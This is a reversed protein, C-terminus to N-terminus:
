PLKIVTGPMLRSGKDANKYGASKAAKNLVKKNKKWIDEWLSGDGYVYIAITWLTDGEKIEYNTGSLDLHPTRGGIHIKDLLGDALGLDGTTYIELNEYVKLSIDYRINGYGGYATPSFASITVDQNIWTDTIILNLVTNEDMWKRLTDVCVLPEQWTGPTIYPENIFLKSYFDGQWTFENTELGRPVLINGRSIVTYTHYHTDQRGGIETPISPFTFAEEPKGVPMLKIEM